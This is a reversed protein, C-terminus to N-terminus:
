AEASEDAVRRVILDLRNNLSSVGLDIGHDFPEPM